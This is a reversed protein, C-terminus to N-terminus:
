GGEPPAADLAGGIVQQPACGNALKEFARRLLLVKEYALSWGYDDPAALHKPSIHGEAATLCGALQVLAREGLDNPTM